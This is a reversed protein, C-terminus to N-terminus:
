LWTGTISMGLILFPWWLLVGLALGIALAWRRKIAFYATSVVSAVLGISSYLVSIAPDFQQISPFLNTIWFGVYQGIISLVVGM